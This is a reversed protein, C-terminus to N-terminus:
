ILHITWKNSDDDNDFYTSNDLCLGMLKEITKINPYWLIKFSENKLKKLGEEIVQRTCWGVLMHQEDWVSQYSVGILIINDM